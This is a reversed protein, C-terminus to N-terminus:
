QKQVVLTGNFWWRWSFESHILISGVQLCGTNQSSNGCLIYYLTPLPQEYFGLLLCAITGCANGFGIVQLIQTPCLESGHKNNTSNLFPRERGHQSSEKAFFWWRLSTVETSSRGKQQHSKPSVHVLSNFNEHNSWRKLIRVEVPQLGIHNVSVFISSSYCLLGWFMCFTRSRCLLQFVTKSLLSFVCAYCLWCWKDILFNWVEWLLNISIQAM